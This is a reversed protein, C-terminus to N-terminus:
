MESSKFIIPLETATWISLEERPLVPYVVPIKKNPEKDRIMHITLEDFIRLVQNVKTPAELHIFSASHFTEYLHPITWEGFEEEKGELQAM